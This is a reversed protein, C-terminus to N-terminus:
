QNNQCPTGQGHNSSKCGRRSAPFLFEKANVRLHPLIAPRVTGKFISGLFDAVPKRTAGLSPVGFVIRILQQFAVSEAIHLVLGKLHFRPAAVGHRQANHGLAAIVEPLYGDNRQRMRGDHGIQFSSDHIYPITEFLIKLRNFSFEFAFNGQGVNTQHPNSILFVQM